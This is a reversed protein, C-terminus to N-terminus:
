GTVTLGLATGRRWPKHGMRELMEEEHKTIATAVERNGLKLNTKTTNENKVTLDIEDIEVINKSAEAKTKANLVNDMRELVKNFNDEIHKGIEKGSAKWENNFEQNAAEFRKKWNAGEQESMKGMKVMLPVMVLSGWYAIKEFGLRLTSFLGTILDIVLQIATGISGFILVLGVGFLKTLPILGELAGGLGITLNDTVLSIANGLTIMVDDVIGFIEVIANFIPMALDWLMGLMSGLFLVVPKLAKWFLIVWGVFPIFKGLVAGMRPSLAAIMTGAKPFIGSIIKWLGSFLPVLTSTFAWSFVAVIPLVSAAVATKGIGGIFARKGGKGFAREFRDGVEDITGLLSQIKQRVWEITDNIGLAIDVQAAGFQSKLYGIDFYDYKQMDRIKAMVDAVGKVQESVGPMGKVFIDKMSMWIENNLSGLAAAFKEYQAETTQMRAEAIRQAMGSKNKLAAEVNALASDTMNGIKDFARSGQRGFIMDIVDIYEKGTGVQKQIKSKWQRVWDIIRPMKGEANKDVSLGLEDLKEKAQKSNGALADLMRGLVTGAKTGREGASELLGLYPITEEFQYGARRAFSGGQSIASGLSSISSATTNAVAQMADLVSGTQDWSKGFITMTSGLTTVASDLGMGEARAAIMAARSTQTLDKNEVGLKSFALQADLVETSSKGFEYGLNRASGSLQDMTYSGAGTIAKVEALKSEYEIGSKVIRTMGYSVPAMAFAFNRASEGIRYLGIGLGKGFNAYPDAIKGGKGGKGGGATAVATQTAMGQAANKTQQFASQAQGMRKIAEDAEFILKAELGIKELAM